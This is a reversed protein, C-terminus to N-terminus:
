GLPRTEGVDLIALQEPRLGRAAWCARLREPPEGLHEDTLKYTGWHMAVFVRAELIEFARVADEPAMHQPRMFWGPEYAGIPLMAWDVQPVRRRIAMFMPESLATDGAHYAVGEPGAYVFGGWLRRNRDWPSRMSWHQAPVLTIALEGERYTDWWGLEVVRPLGAARLLGGVDRPVLYLPAPGLRRLTPMDLHDHHAHSITVVDVPPMAELAVGPPSRRRVIGQIRASWIPDTLILKGGLRLAFTAHGIWTLHAGPLRLPQGDNDRRPPVYDRDDPLGRRGLRWRLVDVLGKDPTTGDLNRYRPM